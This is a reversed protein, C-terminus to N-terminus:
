EKKKIVLMLCDDEAFARLFGAQCEAVHYGSVLPKDDFFSGKKYELVIHEEEGAKLFNLAKRENDNEPKFMVQKIDDCLVIACKM